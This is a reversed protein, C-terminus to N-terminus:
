ELHKMQKQGKQASISISILKTDDAYILNHIPTGNTKVEENEHMM